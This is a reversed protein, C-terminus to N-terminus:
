KKKRKGEVYKLVQEFPYADLNNIKNNIEDRLSKSEDGEEDILPNNKLLESYKQREESTIQTSEDLTSDWYIEKGKIQSCISLIVSRPYEIDERGIGLALPLQDAKIAIEMDKAKVIDFVQLIILKQKINYVFDIIKIKVKQM